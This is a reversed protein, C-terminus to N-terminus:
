NCFYPFLLVRFSIKKSTKQLPNTKLPISIANKYLSLGNARFLGNLRVCADPFPVFSITHFAWAFSSPPRSPM